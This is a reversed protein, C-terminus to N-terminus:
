NKKKFIDVVLRIIKLIILLAIIGLVITFITKFSNSLSDWISLDDPNAKGHNLTPSHHIEEGTSNNIVVGYENVSYDNSNVIEGYENITIVSENGYEDKIVYIPEPTDYLSAGIIDLGDSYYAFQLVGFNDVNNNSKSAGTNLKPCHDMMICYKFDKAESPWGDFANNGLEDFYTGCDIGTESGIMSARFKNSIGDTRSPSSLNYYYGDDCMIYKLQAGSSFVSYNIQSLTFYDDGKRSFDSTIVPWNGNNDKFEFRLSVLDEPSILGDDTYINFFIAAFHHTGPGWEGDSISNQKKDTFYIYYYAEGFKLTKVNNPSTNFYINYSSLDYSGISTLKFNMNTTLSLGNILYREKNSYLNSSCTLSYTNSNGNLLGTCSEFNLHTAYNGNRPKKSEIDLYVNNGDKYFEEIIFDTGDYLVSSSDYAYATKFSTFLIFMLLVSILIFLKTFFKDKFKLLFSKM